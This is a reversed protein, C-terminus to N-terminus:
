RKTIESDVNLNLDKAKEVLLLQDIQDRLADAQKEKVAQELKAGAIGQQRFDAEIQQRTRELEGRTIIDGNVKAVIEEIIRVDSAAATSLSAALVLFLRLYM